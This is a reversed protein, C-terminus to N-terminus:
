SYRMWKIRHLTWLAGLYLEPRLPVAYRPWPAFIMYILTYYVLVVFIFAAKRNDPSRNLIRIVWIMGSFAFLVWLPHMLKMVIRVIDAVRSRDFLSSKVPYVFVDGQGQLINWSWLYFPKEFLYWSMYRVPREQIRPLLIKFFGSWSSSFEPQLPDERYPFYKYKADKHVFGPYAGHTATAVARQGGTPVDPPLSLRNRTTWASPFLLFVVSFVLLMFRLNKGNAKPSKDSILVAAVLIFPLFLVTENTLYCMGFLTGAGAYHVVRDKELAHIFCLLALVLLFGFLTETLVYGTMAVLHPSTGVLVAGGVAWKFPLIKKGLFYVMVATLASLVAQINLLLSYYKAEGGILFCAAVLLPYGPSRYSDPVPTETPLSTSYIQRNALNYGYLVYQRADNRIPNDIVMNHIYADRYLLSLSFILGLLLVNTKLSPNKVTM